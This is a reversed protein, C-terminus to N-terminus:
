FGYNSDQAMGWIVTWLRGGRGWVTDQQERALGGPKSCSWGWWTSQCRRSCSCRKQQRAPPFIQHGEFRANPPLHRAITVCRPHHSPHPAARQLRSTHITFPPRQCSRRNARDEKGTRLAGVKDSTYTHEGAGGPGTERRGMAVADAGVQGWGRRRTM